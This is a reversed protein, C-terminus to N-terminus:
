LDLLSENHFKRCERTVEEGKSGFRRRLVGVEFVRLTCSGSNSALMM